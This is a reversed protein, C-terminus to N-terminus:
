ALKEEVCNIIKRLTNFNEILIEDPDIKVGLSDELDLTLLVFEMSDLGLGTLDEDVDIDSKLGLNQKVIKAVEMSIENVTKM